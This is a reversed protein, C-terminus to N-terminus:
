KDKIIQELSELSIDDLNDVLYDLMRRTNLSTTHIIVFEKHTLEELMEKVDGDTSIDLAEQIVSDHSLYSYLGNSSDKDFKDIIVNAVDAEDFSEFLLELVINIKTKDTM